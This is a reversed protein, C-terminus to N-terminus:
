AERYFEMFQGKFYDYFAPLNRRESLLKVQTQNIKGVEEKTGLGIRWAVSIPTFFEHLYRKNKNKIADHTTKDVEFIQKDPHSQILFYRIYEKRQYDRETPEVYQSLPIIRRDLNIKSSNFYLLNYISNDVQDVILEGKENYIIFPETDKPENLAVQSINISPNGLLSTSWTGNEIPVLLQNTGSYPNKGTYLKGNAYRWYYGTYDEQSSAIMIEQGNTYLDATYHSKPVYM